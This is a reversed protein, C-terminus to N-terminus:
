GNEERNIALVTIAMRVDQDKVALARLMSATFQLRRNYGTLWGERRGKLVCWSRKIPRRCLVGAPRYVYPKAQQLRAAVVLREFTTM